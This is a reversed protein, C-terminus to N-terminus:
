REVPGVELREKDVRLIFCVEGAPLWHCFFMDYVSPFLNILHGIWKLVKFSSFVFWRKEMILPFGSGYNTSNRELKWKEYLRPKGVIKTYGDFTRWGFPIKHDPDGFWKSSPFYSANVRIRGGQRTIRVLEMIAKHFSYLHALVHDCLVEDFSDDKFPFPAHNLDAIIDVGEYPTIDLNVHGERTISGCGLNLKM